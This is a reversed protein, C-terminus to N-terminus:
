QPPNAFDYTIFILVDILGDFFVGMSSAHCRYADLIRQLSNQPYFANDLGLVYQNFEPFCSLRM